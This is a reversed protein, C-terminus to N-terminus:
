KSLAALSQTTALRAFFGNYMSGDNIHEVHTVEGASNWTIRQLDLRATVANRQDTEAQVSFSAKIKQEKDISMSKDSLFALVLEPNGQGSPLIDVPKSAYILGAREETREIEYGM